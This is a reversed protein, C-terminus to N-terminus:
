PAMSACPNHTTPERCQLRGRIRALHETVRLYDTEIQKERRTAWGQNPKKKMVCSHTGPAGDKREKCPHSEV